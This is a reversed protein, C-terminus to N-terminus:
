GERSTIRRCHRCTPGIQHEELKGTLALGCATWTTTVGQYTDVVAAHIRGGRTSLKLPFRSTGM